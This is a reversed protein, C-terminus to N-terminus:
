NFARAVINEEFKLQFNPNLIKAYCNKTNLFNSRVSAFQLTALARVKFLIAISHFKFSIKQAKFLVTERTLKRALKVNCTNYKSAM